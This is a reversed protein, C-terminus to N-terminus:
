ADIGAALGMVSAYTVGNALLDAHRGREVIMGHRLVLIEDAACVTEPRHAIVLLACHRSLADISRAVVAATERDLAAAPEDLVVLDADQLFVRALSIRQIEGGSLGQGRDGLVTDLGRPLRAVLRTAEAREVAQRVRAPDADPRGLRINDLVTGHFLTPRQPLWAIRARWAEPCLDALDIGDVTIRGCTPALFGLLLQSLTTKGAGSPGVLAIRHGRELTFDIGQLASVADYSFGVQEFRIRQISPAPLTTSASSAPPVPTSLLDVIADAAGIAEMRVHYQTGMARLPRYFEPALLLVAFGPLFNLEGYYLRFGIYVAVMAISLTALFELALSSLFAVRLVDMTSSRYAEGSDAIARTEARSAHFLKLTTLGEIADFVHAALHALKRWQAQNLAETGRGILVMFIPVLPASVVLIIASVWDTPLVFCLIALPIFATLVRQPLYGAYYRGISEAADCVTSAVEGTRQRRSWAPGLAVIRAQLATRVALVVCAGAEFAVADGVAALVSRLVFMAILVWLWPWVADLGHGGVVVADVTRALLWSQVILALGGVAGSAVAGALPARALPSQRRLFAELKRGEARSRPASHTPM